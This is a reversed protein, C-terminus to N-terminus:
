DSVANAYPRWEDGEPEGEEGGGGGESPAGCSVFPDGADGDLLERVGEGGEDLAGFGDGLNGDHTALQIARPPGDALAFLGESM